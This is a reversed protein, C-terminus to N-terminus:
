AQAEMDGFCGGCIWVSYPDIDGRFIVKPFDDSDYTYEEGRIFGFAHALEDLNAEASMVVGAALGWGDFAEGEATPLAAIICDPCYIEANFMYAAITDM